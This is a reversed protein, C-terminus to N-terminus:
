TRPLAQHAALTDLTGPARSLATLPSPVRITFLWCPDIFIYFFVYLFIKIFFFCFGRSIRCSTPLISLVVSSDASCFAANARYLSSSIRSM